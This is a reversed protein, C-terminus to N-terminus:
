LTVQNAPSLQSLVNFPWTQFSVGNKHLSSGTYLHHYLYHHHHHNNNNNHPCFCFLMWRLSTKHARSVLCGELVMTKVFVAPCFFREQGQSLTVNTSQRLVETRPLTCHGRESM